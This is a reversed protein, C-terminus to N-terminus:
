EPLFGSDLPVPHAENNLPKAVSLLMTVYVKFPVGSQLAAMKARRHVDRPIVVHLHCTPESVPRTTLLGAPMERNMFM